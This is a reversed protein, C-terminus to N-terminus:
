SYAVLVTMDTEFLAGCRRNGALSFFGCRSGPQFFALRPHRESDDAIGRVVQRRGQDTLVEFLLRGNRLPHRAIVTGIVDSPWSEDEERESAAYPLCAPRYECRRCTGPAPRGLLYAGEQYSATSTVSNTELLLARAEALLATCAAPEVGSAVPPGDLPVIELRLPWVGTSEAYLVAYLQLQTWGEAAARTGPVAALGTKYDRLVVGEPESVVEDIYGGVLDDASAVWLESGQTRPRLRRGASLPQGAASHALRVAAGVARQHRVEYDRAHTALPLLLRESPSTDMLSEQEAIFQDLARRASESSLETAAPRSAFELLRHIATGLRAAAARPLLREIASASYAERLPCERFALYRSPSLRRIPVLAVAGVDFASANM